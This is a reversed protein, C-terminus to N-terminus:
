EIDCRESLPEEFGIVMKKEQNITRSLQSNAILSLSDV